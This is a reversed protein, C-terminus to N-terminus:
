YVYDADTEESKLDKFQGFSKNSYTIIAKIQSLHDYNNCAM